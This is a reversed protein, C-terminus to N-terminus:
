LGLSHWSAALSKELYAEGAVWPCRLHGGGMSLLNCTGGTQADEDGVSVHGTMGHNCRRWTNLGAMGFAPNLVHVGSVQKSHNSLVQM